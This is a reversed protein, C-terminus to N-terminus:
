QEIQVTPQNAAARKIENVATIGEQTFVVGESLARDIVEEAKQPNGLQLHLIGLRWWGEALQPLKAISAEMIAISEEYKGLPVLISALLYEVQQRDPSLVLAKRTNQEALRLLAPDKKMESLLIQLEAIQITYRLDYPLLAINKEIEEKMFEGLAVAETVQGAKVMEVMRPKMSRTFDHRVDDIHPTRHQNLVDTYMAVVNAQPNQAARLVSLVGMNAKAPQINTINILLLALLTVFVVSGGSINKSRIAGKEEIRERSLVSMMALFFMFFMYSTLNEFVFFNHVFHAALFMIGIILVYEDIRNAKYANGMVIIPVIFLALYTLVGFLGQTTLTNVVVNHASDFWTETWGHLLFEPKYYTNFAYFYNNPGWGFLVHDKWGEIGIEWAMIRTNTAINGFDIMTIRKLVPIANIVASDRYAFLGATGLVGFLILLLVAVRVKVNKWHLIMYAIAACAIGVALGIFSGRTGSIIIGIFGLAAGLFSAYQWGSKKKEKLGLLLGLCTLFIGYGGVYIANGLTSAVRVAGRNILLEPSLRQLLGIGMVISGAFLFLRAFVKWSKWDPLLRTCVAYYVAFHLLTFLGLMREHNDWFSRYFSQGVVSSITLSLFFLLVAWSILDFKQKQINGTVLLLLFGGLMLVLLSRFVFAKLVIFPFIFSSPIVLLPVFFTAALCVKLFLEIHKKM